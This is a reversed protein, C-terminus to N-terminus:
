MKTQNHVLIICTFLVNIKITFYNTHVELGIVMEWDGTTGKIIATM